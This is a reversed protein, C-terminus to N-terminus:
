KGCCGTEKDPDIKVTNVNVDIKAPGDGSNPSFAEVMQRFLMEFAEKIGIKDKASTEIFQM